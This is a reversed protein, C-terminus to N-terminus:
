VMAWGVNFLAPLTIYWATQFGPYLLEGGASRENVFTPYMFIGAFCPFVIITGVFYWPM